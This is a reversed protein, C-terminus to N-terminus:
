KGNRINRGKEAMSNCFWSPLNKLHDIFDRQCESDDAAQVPAADAQEAKVEDCKQKAAGGAYHATDDIAQDTNKKASGDKM